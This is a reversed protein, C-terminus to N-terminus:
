VRLNTLHCNLQGSYSIQQVEITYTIAIDVPIYYTITENSPITAQFDLSVTVSDSIPQPLVSPLTAQLSTLISIPDSLTPPLPSANTIVANTLVTENINTNLGNL